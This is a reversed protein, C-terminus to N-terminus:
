AMAKKRQNKYWALHSKQNDNFKSEPFEKAVAKFIFDDSKGKDLLEYILAGVGRKKQQAPTRKSTAKKAGAKKAGAKKRSAKKTTTKKRAAM